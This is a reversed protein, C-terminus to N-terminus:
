LLTVLEDSLYMSLSPKCLLGYSFILQAFHYVTSVSAKRTLVLSLFVYEVNAMFRRCLGDPLEKIALYLHSLYLSLVTTQITSCVYHVPGIVVVLRPRSATVTYEILISLPMCKLCLGVCMCMSCMFMNCFVLICKHFGIHM